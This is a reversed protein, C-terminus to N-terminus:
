TNEQITCGNVSCKSNTLIKNTDVHIVKKMLNMLRHGFQGSSCQCALTTYKFDRPREQRMVCEVDGSHQSFPVNLRGDNRKVGM